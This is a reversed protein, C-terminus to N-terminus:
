GPKGTSIIQAEDVRPIAPPLYSLTGPGLWWWGTLGHHYKGTRMRLSSEAVHWSRRQHSALDTLLPAADSARILHLAFLRRPEGAALKRRQRGSNSSHKV